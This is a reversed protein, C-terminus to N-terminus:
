KKCKGCNKCEHTFEIKDRKAIYYNDKKIFGFKEYINDFKDFIVVNENKLSLAKLILTRTLMDKVYFDDTKMAIGDIITEGNKIYLRGIGKIEGDDFAGLHYSFNDFEDLEVGLVEKRISEINKIDIYEKVEIM